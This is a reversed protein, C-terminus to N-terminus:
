EANFAGDIANGIIASVLHYSALTAIGIVVAGCFLVKGM